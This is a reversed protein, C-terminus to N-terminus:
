PHQTHQRNHLYGVLHEGWGGRYHVEFGGDSRQTATFPVGNITFEFNLESGGTDFVVAYAKDRDWVPVQIDLRACWAALSAPVLQSLDHKAQARLTEKEAESRMEEESRWSSTCSQGGTGDTEEAEDLVKLSATGLEHRHCALSVRADASTPCRARARRGSGTVEAQFASPRRNSGTRGLAVSWGFCRSTM